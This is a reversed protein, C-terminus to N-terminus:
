FWWWFAITPTFDVFFMVNSLYVRISLQYTLWLTTTKTSKGVPKKWQLYQSYFVIFVSNYHQANDLESILVLCLSPRSKRRETPRWHWPYQKLKNILRKTWYKIWSKWKIRHIPLITIGRRGRSTKILPPHGKISSLITPPEWAV